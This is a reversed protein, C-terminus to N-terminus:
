KHSFFTDTRFKLHYLMHTDYKFVEEQYKGLESIRKKINTSKPVLALQHNLFSMLKSIFMATMLFLLNCGHSAFGNM